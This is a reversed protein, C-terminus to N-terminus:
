GFTRADNALNHNANWVACTNASGADASIIARALLPLTDRRVAV